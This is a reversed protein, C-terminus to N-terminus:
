HVERVEFSNWTERMLQVFGEENEGLNKCGGVLQKALVACVLPIPVDGVERNLAERIREDIAEFNEIFEEYDREQQLENEHCSM